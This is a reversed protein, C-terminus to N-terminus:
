ATTGPLDGGPMDPLATGLHHPSYESLATDAGEFLPHKMTTNELRETGSTLVHPASCPLEHYMIKM